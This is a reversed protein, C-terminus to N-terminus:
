KLHTQFTPSLNLNLESSTYEGETDTCGHMQNLDYRLVQCSNLNRPPTTAGYLWLNTILSLM